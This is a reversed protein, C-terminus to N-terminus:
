GSKFQKSALEKKKTYFTTLTELAETYGLTSKAREIRIRTPTPSDQSPPSCNTRDASRRDYQATNSM